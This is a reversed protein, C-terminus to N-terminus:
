DTAVAQDHVIHLAFGHPPRRSVIGPCALLRPAVLSSSTAFDATRADRPRQPGRLTGRRRGAEALAEALDATAKAFASAESERQVDPMLLRNDAAEFVDRALQNAV